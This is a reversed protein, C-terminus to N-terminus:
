RGRKESRALEVQLLVDAALKRSLEAAKRLNRAAAGSHCGDAYRDLDAAKSRLKEALATLRATPGGCEKNSVLRLAPRGSPATRAFVASGRSWMIADAVHSTILDIAEIEEHTPM